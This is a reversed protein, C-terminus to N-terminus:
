LRGESLIFTLWVAAVEGFRLEGKWHGHTPFWADLLSAVHMAQVQALLVPIDDVREVKILRINKDM